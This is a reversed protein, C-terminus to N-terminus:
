RRAARARDLLERAVAHYPDDRRIAKLIRKAIAIAARIDQKRRTAQYRILHAASVGIVREMYDMHQPPTVNLADYGLQVFADLDSPNGDREFRAHHAEQLAAIRTGLGLDDGPTTAVAATLLATGEDLDSDLRSGIAYRFVLTRGLNAQHMPHNEHTGPNRALAERFSDVALDLDEPAASVSFRIQLLGGLVSHGEPINPDGAPTSETLETVADIAADLDAPDETRLFRLKHADSLDMRARWTEPANASLSRIHHRVSFIVYNIEDLSSGGFAVVAVRHPYPKVPQRAAEDLKRLQEPIDPFEDTVRGLMSEALEREAEASNGLHRAYHLLGVAHWMEPRKEPTSGWLADIDRAGALDLLDEPDSYTAFRSVRDRVAALLEEYTVRVTEAISTVL